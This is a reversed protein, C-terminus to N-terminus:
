NIDRRAVHPSCLLPVGSVDWTGGGGGGLFVGFFFFFFGGGVLFFFFAATRLKCGMGGTGGLNFLGFRM